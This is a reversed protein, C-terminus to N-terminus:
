NQATRFIPMTTKYNKNIWYPRAINTREPPIEPEPESPHPEVLQWRIGESRVAGDYLAEILQGRADEIGSLGNSYTTLREAIVGVAEDLSMYKRRFM